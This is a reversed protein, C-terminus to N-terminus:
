VDERRITQGPAIAHVDVGCVKSDGIQYYLTHCTPNYIARMDASYVLQRFATTYECIEGITAYWIEPRNAMYSAFDEMINWVNGDKKEFEWSHGGLVFITPAYRVPKEAFQAALEMLRPNKHHCTVQFEMWDDPLDFKETSGTKRFYALGYSRIVRMALQNMEGYPCGLGRVIGGFDEELALRDAHIEQFIEHGPLQDLFAHTFGHAAVEMGSDRYLALAESRTLRRHPPKCDRSPTGEPAALGGNVFFTGKLNYKKLIAMLRIDAEPADDYSFSLARDKGGPYRMFLQKM